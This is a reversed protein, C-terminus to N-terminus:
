INTMKAVQVETFGETQEESGTWTALVKNQVIEGCAMIRPRLGVNPPQQTWTVGADLSAWTDTFLVFYQAPQSVVSHPPLILNGNEDFYQDVPRAGNFFYIINEQSVMNAAFRPAFGANANTLKWSAGLNDSTWVDNLFNGDNNLGAALVLVSGFAVDGVVALSHHYRPEWMAGTQKQQVWNQGRGDFSVWVDNFYFGDNKLGGALVIIDSNPIIVGAHHRRPEWPITKTVQNWNKGEDASWFVDNTGSAYQEVIGFGGSLVLIKKNTVTLVAGARPPSAHNASNTTQQVWSLAGDRSIWVDNYPAANNNNVGGHMYITKKNKYGPTNFSACNALERGDWGPQNPTSYNAYYWNIQTPLPLPNFVVQALVAPLTCLVVATILAARPTLM